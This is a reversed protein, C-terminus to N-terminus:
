AIEEVNISPTGTVSKAYIIINDTIDYFRESGDTITMGIYAIPTNIYNIKIEIGSRNQISIANRGALPVLPLATWSTSNLAVETVKGGVNLGSPKFTGTLGTAVAIFKREASNFIYRANNPANLILTKLISTTGSNATTISFGTNIDLSSTTVGAIVNEFIVVKGSKTATFNANNDIVMKVALAVISSPDNASIPVELGTANVLAPDNGLGDVNFWVYFKNIDNASYIIFYKDQLSSNVDGVTVINTKEQGVDKYFIAQSVSDNADYTVDVRDFYSPVQTNADTVRLSHSDLDHSSKLVQGPDLQSLDKNIAM